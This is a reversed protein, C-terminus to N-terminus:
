RGPAALAEEFAREFAEYPQAGQIRQVGGGPGLVFFAPTGTLGLARADANSALIADSHAGSAMCGSWAAVDLGAERAFGDHNERSAWGDNEGTWNSYLTDHYEWFLGQDAACRAAHSSTVSDPGIINYDKFIMRVKGTEVYGDVILHETAHFFVNCFHCQYDGFEVLTVPADPSGLPPSGNGLLLGEGPPGAQGDGWPAAGLALLSAAVAASIAAGAALSPWHM